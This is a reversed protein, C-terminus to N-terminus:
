CDTFNDKDSRRERAQLHSGLASLPSLGVQRLEDEAAEGGGGGVDGGELLRRRAGEHDASVHRM